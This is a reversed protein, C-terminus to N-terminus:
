PASRNTMSGTSSNGIDGDKSALSPNVPRLRDFTLELSGWTMSQRVVKGDRTVWVDGLQRGISLGNNDAREYVVHFTRIDRGEQQLIQKGVVRANITQMPHSPFLPNYTEFTWTQGLKLRGFHPRPSLCDTVLMDAPLPLRLEQLPATKRNGLVPFLLYAKVVLEDEHVTGQLKICEGLKDETVSCEFSSLQGFYELQMTNQITLTMQRQDKVKTEMKPAALMALNTFDRRFVQDASLKELQVTSALTGQGDGHREVDHTAWGIAKGNLSIQWHITPLRSPTEPLIDAHKPAQVLQTSPFIKTWTLWTM